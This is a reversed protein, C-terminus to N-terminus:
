MLGFKYIRQWNDFPQLTKEYSWQTNRTMNIHVRIDFEANKTGALDAFAGGFSMALPVAAM